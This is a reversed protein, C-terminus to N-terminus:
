GRTVWQTCTGGSDISYFDKHSRQYVVNSKTMRSSQLFEVISNMSKTSFASMRTAYMITCTRVHRTAWSIVMERM